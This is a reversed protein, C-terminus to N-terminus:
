LEESAELLGAAIVGVAAALSIWIGIGRGAFFFDDPISILRVLVFVTAAAGLAITILSEPVTPPLEVGLERLVILLVVAVGTAFVLKGLTGTNWGLVSVTVGEGEGSYWGTFASVALLLGAVLAVREGLGLFTVGRGFRSEPASM